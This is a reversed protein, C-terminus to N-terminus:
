ADMWLTGSTRMLDQNAGRHCRYAPNYTRLRNPQYNVVLGLHHWGEGLVPRADPNMLWM